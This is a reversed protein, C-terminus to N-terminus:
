AEPYGRCSKCTVNDCTDPSPHEQTIMSSGATTNTDSAKTAAPLHDTPLFASHSVLSSVQLQALSGSRWGKRRKRDKATYKNNWATQLSLPKTLQHAAQRSSSKLHASYPFPEQGRGREKEGQAGAGRGGLGSALDQFALVCCSRPLLYCACSPCPPLSVHLVSPISHRREEM